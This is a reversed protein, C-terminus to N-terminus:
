GEGSEGLPVNSLRDIVAESESIGKIIGDYYGHHKEAAADRKAEAKGIKESIGDLVTETKKHFDQARETLAAMKGTLSMRRDRAITTLVRATVIRDAANNIAVPDVVVETIDKPVSGVEAAAVSVSETVRRHDLSPALLLADLPTLNAAM